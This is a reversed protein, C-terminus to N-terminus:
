VTHDLNGSKECKKATQPPKECKKASKKTSDKDPKEWYTWIRYLNIPIKPRGHL